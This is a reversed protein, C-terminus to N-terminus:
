TPSFKRHHVFNALHTYSIGSGMEVVSALTVISLLIPITVIAETILSHLASEILIQRNWFKIVIPVM